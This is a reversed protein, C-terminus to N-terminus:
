VDAEQCARVFAKQKQRSWRWSRNQWLWRAAFLYFKIRRM